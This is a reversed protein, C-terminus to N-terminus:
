RVGPRRGQPVLRRGRRLGARVGLGKAYMWGLNNQAAANGQDAAKRYWVIAQENDQAVGQGQAYMAALNFQADAYGQDAAKRYWAAAQACDQALGQGQAYM